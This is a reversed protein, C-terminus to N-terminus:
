VVTQADNLPLIEGLDGSIISKRSLTYSYATMLLSSLKRMFKLPFVNSTETINQLYIIFNVM